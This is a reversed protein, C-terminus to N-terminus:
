AAVAAERRRRELAWVLGVALLDVAIFSLMFPGGQGVTRDIVVGGGGSFLVAIVFMILNNAIHFAIPAELGRSILAMAAMCAGFATYYLALWPDISGHLLGFILSSGILSVLVATKSPRIWSAIAPMVTGRLALEEGAAQLPTTLLVIVLLAVTTGTVAFAGGVMSAPSILAMIASTLLILGAFAGVYLGFRSRQARRPFSLLHSRPVQGIWRMLLLSIAGAAGVGLNNALMTMPTFAATASERVGLSIELLIAIITLVTPVVLIALPPLVALLLARWWRMRVHAPFPRAPDAGYATLPAATQLLDAPSSM